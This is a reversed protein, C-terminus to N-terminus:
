VVIEHKPHISKDCNISNKGDEDCIEPQITTNHVGHKYMIGQIEEYIEYFNGDNHLLVHITGIIRADTLQWVHLHHCGEVGNIDTIEEKIEKINIHKPVKQLLIHICQKVLPIANYLILFVIIISAIPDALFRYESDVFKIILGSVIVAISGLIDGIMHLMLAKINLNQGHSHGSHSHGSHSHGEGSHGATLFVVVGIINVFLGLSGVILLLDVENGLTDGIESYERFKHISELIIFLCSSILFVGNMLAGIIEARLWGFTAKDTADRNTLIVCYFAIILALLDSMMHFADAQLALSEILIGTILEVFFFSGILMIMTIFRWYSSLKISKAINSPIEDLLKIEGHDDCHDNHIHHLRNGVIYDYHDLHPVKEYGKHSHNNCIKKCKSVTHDLNHELFEDNKHDYCKLKNKYIYGYHDDHEILLGNTFKNNSM